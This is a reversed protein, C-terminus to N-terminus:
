KIPRTARRTDMSATYLRERTKKLARECSFAVNKDKPIYTALREGQAHVRTCKLATSGIERQNRSDQDQHWRECDHKTIWKTQRTARRTDISATYLRERTKKLARECSFAVNKDKPSTTAGTRSSYQPFNCQVNIHKIYLFTIPHNQHLTTAMAESRKPHVHTKCSGQTQDSSALHQFM